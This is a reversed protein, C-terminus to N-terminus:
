SEIVWRFQYKAESLLKPSSLRKRAKGTGLRWMYLIKRWSFYPSLSAPTQQFFRFMTGIEFIVPWTRFPWVPNLWTKEYTTNQEDCACTGLCAINLLNMTKQLKESATKALKPNVCRIKQTYHINNTHPKNSTITYTNDNWLGSSHNGCRFVPTQLRLTTQPISKHYCPRM